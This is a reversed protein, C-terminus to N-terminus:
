RALRLLINPVIREGPDAYGQQKEQQQNLHRSTEHEGPRIQEPRGKPAEKSSPDGSRTNVRAQDLGAGRFENYL